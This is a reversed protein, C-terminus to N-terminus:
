DALAQSKGFMAGVTLVAKASVIIFHRFVERFDNRVGIKRQNGWLLSM